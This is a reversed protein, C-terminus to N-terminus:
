VCVCILNKMLFYIELPPTVVLGLIVAAICTREDTARTTDRYVLLWSNPIKNTLRKNLEKSRVYYETNISKQPNQLHSVNLSNWKKGDYESYRHNYAHIAKGFFLRIWDNNESVSEIQSSNQIKLFIDGPDSLSLMRQVSIKWPNSKSTENVLVGFKRYIKTSILVDQNNIFIPPSLTNPSFQNLMEVSITTLRDSNKLVNTDRGMFCLSIKENGRANCV